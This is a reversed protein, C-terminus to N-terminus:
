PARRVDEGGASRELREWLAREDPPVALAPAAFAASLIAALAARLVRITM